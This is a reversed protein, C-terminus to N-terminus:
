ASQGPVSIRARKELWPGQALDDIDLFMPSGDKPGYDFVKTMLQRYRTLEDQLQKVVEYDGTKEAIRRQEELAKTYDRHTSNGDVDPIMVIVGPKDKFKIGIEFEESDFMDRNKMVLQPLALAYISERTVGTFMEYQQNVIQMFEWGKQSLLGKLLNKGLPDTIKFQDSNIFEVVDAIFQSKEDMEVFAANLAFFAENTRRTPEDGMGNAVEVLEAPKEKEAELKKEEETQQLIQLAAPQVTSVTVPQLASISTM